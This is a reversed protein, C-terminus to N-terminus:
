RVLRRVGVVTRPLTLIEPDGTLVFAGLAQAAAVVFADAYSLSHRAKVRAAALILPERVPVLDVPLARVLALAGDAKGEGELRVTRYYVEGLNLQCLYLRLAGSKARRLYRRVSLAAQGEARLWALVAWSDLVARAASM